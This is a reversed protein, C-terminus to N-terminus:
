QRSGVVFVVTSRSGAATACVVKLGELTGRKPEEEAGSGMSEGREKEGVQVGGAKRVRNMRGTGDM